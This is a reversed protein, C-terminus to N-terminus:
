RHHLWGPALERNIEFRRFRKSDFGRRRDKALGVLHDLSTAVKRDPKSDFRPANVATSPKWRTRRRVLDVVLNFILRVLALM